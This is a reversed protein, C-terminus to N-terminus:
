WRSYGKHANLVRDIKQIMEKETISEKTPNFSSAFVSIIKNFLKFILNAVVFILIPPLAAIFGLSFIYYVWMYSVFLYREEKPRDAVIAAFLGSLASVCGFIFATIWIWNGPGAIKMLNGMEQETNSFTGIAGLLILLFISVASAITIWIVYGDDAWSGDFLKVSTNKFFSFM